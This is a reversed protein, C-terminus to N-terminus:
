DEKIIVAAPVGSKELIGTNIDCDGAGSVVIEPAVGAKFLEAAREPREIANAGLVVMADAKIDGSDVTLLPQPFLVAVIAWLLSISVVTAVTPRVIFRFHHM